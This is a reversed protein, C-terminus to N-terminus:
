HGAQLLHLYLTDGTEIFRASIRANRESSLSYANLPYCRIKVYFSDSTSRFDIKYQYNPLKTQETAGPVFNSMISDGQWVRDGGSYDRIFEYARSYLQEARAKTSSAIPSSNLIQDLEGPVLSDPRSSSREMDQASVSAIMEHNTSSSCGAVFILLIVVICKTPDLLRILPTQCM